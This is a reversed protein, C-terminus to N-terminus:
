IAEAVPPTNLREHTRACRLLTTEDWPRGILQLGIPLGGQKSGEERKSWCPVSIAPVGGLNAAITYVDMLYMALPDVVEGIKPAVTPSTPTAIVDCKAFASKFGQQVLTRVKQATGYYADYYGASLAYTGLMIRRKVEPGFGSGRTAEYMDKLSGGYERLGYRVGDFRALNSSAEAPAIVYYAALAHRTSPLKVKVIKAGAKKLGAISSRVAEEVEPDLGEGFYEEPVGIKLGKVGDELGTLYEPVDAQTCTADRADPAAIVGLVTAADRVTRTLPGVQDLSSAFAILGYRSVRGWTPKLGVVGCLAAPQRISGGTDSGLGVAALGAGVAAASGGSSGGPIYAPDVPNRTEGYASNETSSGMAFEDLNAKGVVVAGAANLREVVHADYAPVFGDLIKSGATTRIGRTMLNDKVAVPVGMLPGLDQGRILAADVRRAAARVASPDVTIYANLESDRLEIDDLVRKVLAAATTSKSTLAERIRAIESM